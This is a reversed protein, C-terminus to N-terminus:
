TNKWSTGCTSCIYMYKMDIDDYKISIIERLIKTIKPIKANEDLILSKNTFIDMDIDNIDTTETFTVLKCKLEKIKEADIKSYSDTDTHVQGYKMINNNSLEVITFSGKNLSTLLSNLNNDNVNDSNFILLSENNTLCDDNICKVNSLRPLTFDQTIYPNKAIQKPLQIVVKNENSIIPKTTDMKETLFGCSHCKYFLNDAEGRELLYLSGCKICFKM